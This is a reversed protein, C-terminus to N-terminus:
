SAPHMANRLLLAQVAMRHGHEDRQARWRRCRQDMRAPSLMPSVRACRAPGYTARSVVLTPERPLCIPGPEAM